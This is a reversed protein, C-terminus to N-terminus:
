VNDTAAIFALETWETGDYYLAIAGGPAVARTAAGLNINADDFTITNTAKSVGGYQPPLAM